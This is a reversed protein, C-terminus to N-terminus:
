IKIKGKFCEAVKRGDDLLEDVLRPHCHQRDVVVDLMKDALSDFLTKLKQVRSYKNDPMYFALAALTDKVGRRYAQEEPWRELMKAVFDSETMNALESCTMMEM